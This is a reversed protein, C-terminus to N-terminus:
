GAGGHQLPNGVSEIGSGFGKTEESVKGLEIVKSTNMVIEKLASPSYFTASRLAELM